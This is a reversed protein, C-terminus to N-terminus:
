KVIKSCVYTRTAHGQTSSVDANEESLTHTTILKMCNQELLSLFNSENFHIEVSEVGYARKRYWQDPHGWVVPTRHFIVYSRAVRSTESIAKAYEPIHLLCCGSVVIDFSNDPYCLNTADSVVFDILPYKEIALQIFSESYDCGSYSVPIGAIDIVESYFGSSCGVELLSTGMQINPLSRLSRVFLDFVDVLTGSKYRRLQQDVLKRQRQPLAYDKWSNRLRASETVIQSLQLPVFNSSASRMPFFNTCLRKIMSKFRPFRNFLSRLSGKM